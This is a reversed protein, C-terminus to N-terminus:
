IDIIRYAVFVVIDSDGTTPNGSDVTVQLSKDAILQTDTESTFLGTLGLGGKLIRSATSKLISESNLVMMGQPLDATDTIIFLDTNVFYKSTNFILSSSWAILEIVKDAGPAAVIELPTTNLQLIQASTISLSASFIIGGPGDDVLNLCSEILDAFQAQTPKDGTEFFAELAARGLQAM